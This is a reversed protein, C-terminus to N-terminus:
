SNELREVKELLLTITKSMQEQSQLLKDVKDLLVQQQYPFLSNDYGLEDENYTLAILQKAVISKATIAPTDSLIEHYNATIPLELMKLRACLLDLDDKASTKISTSDISSNEVILGCSLKFEDPLSVWAFDIFKEKFDINIADDIIKDSIKLYSKPIVLAFWQELYIYNECLARIINKIAQSLTSEQENLTFGQSKLKLWISEFCDSPEFNDHYQYGLSFFHENLADIEM